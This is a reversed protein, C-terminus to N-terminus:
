PSQLIISIRVSDESFVNGEGDVAQITIIYKGGTEMFWFRICLNEDTEPDIGCKGATEGGFEKGDDFAAILKYSHAAHVPTWELLVEVTSSSGGYEWGDEPQLIVITDSTTIVDQTSTATPLQSTPETPVPQDPPTTETATEQEQTQKYQECYPHGRPFVGTTGEICDQETPCLDPIDGILPLDCVDFLRLGVIRGACASVLISLVLFTLLVKLRRM